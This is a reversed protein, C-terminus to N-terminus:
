IASTYSGQLQGARTQISAFEAGSFARQIEMKSFTGSAAGAMVGALLDAVDDITVIMLFDTPGTTAYWCELQGGAATVVKQAAEERDSPSSVMGKAAAASYNGAIVFGPM